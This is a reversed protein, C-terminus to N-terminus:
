TWWFSKKRLTFLVCAQSLFYSAIAYGALRLFTSIQEVFLGNTVVPPTGALKELILTALEAIVSNEPGVTWKIEGVYKIIKYYVTKQADLCHASFRGMMKIKM